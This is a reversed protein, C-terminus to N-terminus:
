IERAQRIHKPSPKFRLYSAVFGPMEDSSDQTDRREMQKNFTDESNCPLLSQGVSYKKPPLTFIPAEWNSHNHSDCHRLGRPPGSTSHASSRDPIRHRQHTKPSFTLPSDSSGQESECDGVATAGAAGFGENRRLVGPIPFRSPNLNRISAVSRMPPLMKGLRKPVIGPGDVSDKRDSPRTSNTGSGPIRTAVSREPSSDSQAKDSNDGSPTMTYKLRARQLSIIRPFPPIIPLTHTLPRHSPLKLLSLAPSHPTRAFSSGESM